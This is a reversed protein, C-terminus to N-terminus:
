IKTTILKDETIVASYYEVGGGTNRQSRNLRPPGGVQTPFKITSNVVDLFGFFAWEKAEWAVIFITWLILKM